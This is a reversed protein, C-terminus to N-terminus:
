QPKQELPGCNLMKWGTILAVYSCCHDHLCLVIHCSWIISLTVKLFSTFVKLGIIKRKPFKMSSISRFRLEKTLNNMALNKIINFYKVVWHGYALFQQLLYHNLWHSVVSNFHEFSHPAEAHESLSIRVWYVISFLILNCLFHVTLDIDMKLTLSMHTCPFLNACGYPYM